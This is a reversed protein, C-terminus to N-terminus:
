TIRMTGALSITANIGAATPDRTLRHERDSDTQMVLTDRDMRKFVRKPGSGSLEISGDDIIPNWRGLSFADMAERTDDAAYHQKFFFRGDSRLWLISAIGPCGECPFVGKYVGPM